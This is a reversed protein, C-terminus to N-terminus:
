ATEQTGPFARGARPEPRLSGHEAGGSVAHMRIRTRNAATRPSNRILTRLIRAVRRAGRGDVLRRGRVSLRRRMDRDAELACVTDAFPSVALHSGRGLDICAGAASIAEVTAQQHRDYSLACAPTGVALAEYLSTGGATIMLDARFMLGIPDEERSAWRFGPPVPRLRAWENQGWDCFGPFGIVEPASALSALGELVTRFYKGSDGGGLNV